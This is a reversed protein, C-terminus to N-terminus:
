DLVRLLCYFKPKVNVIPLNTKTDLMTETKSYPSMSRASVSKPSVLFCTNGGMGRRTIMGVLYKALVPATIYIPFNISSEVIILLGTGLRCIQSHRWYKSSDM